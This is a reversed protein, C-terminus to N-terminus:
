AAKGRTDIWGKTVMRLTTSAASARARLQGSTNTIGRFPVTNVQNTVPCNVTALPAANNVPLEDPESPSTILVLTAATANAVGVNGLWEIGIGTPVTLTQLVAATGLTTINVDLISTGLYCSDGVQTFPRITSGSWLISWIRRANVYGTPLTPATSTSLLIDTTNSADNKSMLYVHFTKAGSLNDAPDRGGANTGAAWVVDIMKTLASALLMRVHNPAATIEASVTEGAAVVIDNTPDGGSNSVTLGAIIARPPAMTILAGDGAGNQGALAYGFKPLDDLIYYKLLGLKTNGADAFNYNTDWSILSKTQLTPPFGPQVWSATLAGVELFRLDGSQAASAAPGGFVGHGAVLRGYDSDDALRVEIGIGNRKLLVEANTTGWRIRQTAAGFTVDGTTADVRVRATADTVLVLDRATGGAAGKQTGVEFVGTNWGLVAREYNTVSTWTNALYLAQAAAGNRMQMANASERYLFADLAGGYGLALAGGLVGGDYLLRAYPGLAGDDVDVQVPAAIGLKGAAGGKFLGVTTDGAPTLGPAANTGNKFRLADALTKIGTVTEAVSGDLHVYTQTHSGDGHPIVVLAEFATSM